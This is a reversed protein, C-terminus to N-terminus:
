SERTFRVRFAFAFTSAQTDAGRISDSFRPRLGFSSCKFGVRSLGSDCRSIQVWIPIAGSLRLRLSFGSHRHDSDLRFLSASPRLKLGQLRSPEFLQRSAVAPSGPPFRVWLGCILLVLPPWGGADVQM